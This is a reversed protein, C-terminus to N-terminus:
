GDPPEELDSSRMTGTSNPGPSPTGSRTALRRLRSAVTPSLLEGAADLMDDVPALAALVARALSGDDFWPADEPEFGLWRLHGGVVAAVLASSGGDPWSHDDAIALWRPALGEVDEWRLMTPAPLCLALSVVQEVWVAAWVQGVHGNFPTTPLGLTRRLADPVLGQHEDPDCGIPADILTLDHVVVRHWGDGARTCLQVVTARRPAPGEGDLSRATGGGAFGIADWEAPAVFGRLAEAPHDVLPKLHLNGDEADLGELGVLTPTGSQAVGDALVSAIPGLEVRDSGRGGPGDTPDCPSPRRRRRPHTSRAPVPDTM